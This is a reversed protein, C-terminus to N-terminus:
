ECQLKQFFPSKQFDVFRFGLSPYSAAACTFDLALTTVSLCVSVYVCVVPVM